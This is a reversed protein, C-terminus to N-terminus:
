RKGIKKVYAYKSDKFNLYDELQEKCRNSFTDLRAIKNGNACIPVVYRKKADISVYYNNEPIEETREIMKTKSFVNFEEYRDQILNIIYEEGVVYLDDLKLSSKNLMDKLIDAIFQMTYKDENKQLEISYKFVGDFFLEAIDKTQFGIEDENFENTLVAMDDYVKKVTSLDWYQQWILCTGLIGDLRDVCIKPKKNEVVPYISIDKINEINIEDEKLYKKIQNSNNIVDYVNIESSEQNITDGMLYDICHSFAPTGLDHFLAALTQTKDKTFNWTMLATAISHDLRSFWYKINHINTYDCGCFQGIGSLRQMEKTNIYKDIFNPYDGKCLINFYEKIEKNQKM